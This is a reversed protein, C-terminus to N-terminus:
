ELELYEVIRDIEKKSQYYLIKCVDSSGHNSIKKITTGLEHHLHNNLLSLIEYSAYFRLRPVRKEQRKVTDLTYHTSFYGKLFLFEEERSAFPPPYREENGKRGMYGSALVFKALPHKKNLKMRYSKKGQPTITKYIENDIEAEKKMMELLKRDRNQFLFHDGSIRSSGWLFGVAWYNVLLNVGKQLLHLLKDVQKPGLIM